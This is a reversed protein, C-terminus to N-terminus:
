AAPIDTTVYVVPSRHSFIWNVCGESPSSMGQTWYVVKVSAPSCAVRHKTRLEHNTKFLSKAMEGLSIALSLDVRHIVESAQRRGREKISGGGGPFICHTPSGWCHSRSVDTLMEHSTWSSNGVRLGLCGGGTMSPWKPICQIRAVPILVVPSWQMVVQDSGWM